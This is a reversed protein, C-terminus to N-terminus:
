QWGYLGFYGASWRAFMLVFFVALVWAFLLLLLFQCSRNEIPKREVREVGDLWESSQGFVM